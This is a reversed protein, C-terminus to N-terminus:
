ADGADNAAATDIVIKVHVIAGQDCTVHTGNLFVKSLRRCARLPELTLVESNGLDLFELSTCATLPALDYTQHDIVLHMLSTCSSLPQLDTAPTRSMVLRRLGDCASLRQLSTVYTDAFWLKTLATTPLPGLDIVDTHNANLSVLRSCGAIPDLHVVQTNEIDLVELSAAMSQLPALSAVGTNRLRLERLGTCAALSFIDRINRCFSMDLRQLATCTALAGILRVGHLKQMRLDVLGTCAALPSVDDVWTNSCDLQTLGPCQAVLPGLRKVYANKFAVSRLSPGMASKPFPGPVKDASRLTTVCDRVENRLQRCLTATKQLNGVHSLVTGRLEAPLELFGICNSEEM